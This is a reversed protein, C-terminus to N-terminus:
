NSPRYCGRCADDKLVLFCKIFCVGSSAFKVISSSLCISSEHSLLCYHPLKHVICLIGSAGICIPVLDSLVQCLKM